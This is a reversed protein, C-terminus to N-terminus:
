PSEQEDSVPTAPSREDLSMRAAEKRQARTPLEELRRKLAQFIREVPRNLSDFAEQARERQEDTTAAALRKSVEEIDQGRRRLYEDREEQRTRLLAYARQQQDHNLDYRRIFSVVYMEWEDRIAPRTQPGDTRPSVPATAALAGPALDPDFTEEGNLVSERARRMEERMAVREEHERMRRQRPDTIWDTEPNFGGDAWIHLKNSVLGLGTKFAAHEADLKLLQDDSFYERMEDTIHDVVEDFKHLMPVAREAWFQIANPDPVEGSLQAEIFENLLAKLERRNERLFTPMTERLVQRTALFQEEDLDYFDIMSDAVRDFFLEIQRQTPWFGEEAYLDRPDPRGRDRRDSPDASQQAAASFAVCAIVGLGVLRRINRM